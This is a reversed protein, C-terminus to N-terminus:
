HQLESDMYRPQVVTVVTVENGGCWPTKNCHTKAEALRHM